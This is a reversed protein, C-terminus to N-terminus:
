CDFYAFIKDYCCRFAAGYRLTVDASLLPAYRLPLSASFLAYCIPYMATTDHRERQRMYRLLLPAPAPPM